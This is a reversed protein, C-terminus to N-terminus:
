FGVGGVGIGGPPTGFGIAGLVGAPPVGGPAAGFGIAGMMGLPPGGPMPGMPPGGMPLPAPMIMDQEELLNNRALLVADPTGRTLKFVKVKLQPKAPATVTGTPDQKAPQQGIGVAPLLFGLAILGAVVASARLYFRMANETVHVPHSQRDDSKIQSA